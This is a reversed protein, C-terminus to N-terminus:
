QLKYNGLFLKIDAHRERGLPVRCSFEFISDGSAVLRIYKRFETGEENGRLIADCIPRADVTTNNSGEIKSGEWEASRKRLQLDYAAAEKGSDIAYTLVERSAEYVHENDAVTMFYSTQDGLLSELKREMFQPAAPLMASFKGASHEYYSWGNPVGAPAAPSSLVSGSPTSSSVPGAAEPEKSWARARDEWRAERERKGQERLAKIPNSGPLYCLITITLGVVVVLLVVGSVLIKVILETAENPQRSVALRSQPVYAQPAEAVPTPVVLPSRCVPCQVVKGALYLDAEFAQGCRCAVVIGM